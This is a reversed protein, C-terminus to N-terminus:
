IVSSEARGGEIERVKQYTKTRRGLWTCVLKGGKIGFLNPTISTQKKLFHELFCNEILSLGTIFVSIKFFYPIMKNTKLHLKLFIFFVFKM